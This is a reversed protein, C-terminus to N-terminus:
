IDSDAQERVYKYFETWTLELFEESPEEMILYDYDGSYVRLNKILIPKSTPGDSCLIENWYIKGNEMKEVKGVWTTKSRLRGVIIDGVSVKRGWIDYHSNTERDYRCRM